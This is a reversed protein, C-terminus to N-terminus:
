EGISVKNKYAAVRRGWWLTEKGYEYFDGDYNKNKSILQYKKHQLLEEDYIVGHINYDIINKDPYVIQPDLMASDQYKLLDAVVGEPMPYNIALFKRIDDYYEKKNKMIAIITAEEFDWAYNERVEPVVRGWPLRADLVGDLTEKTKTLQENLFGDSSEMYGMLNIYFDEFSVGLHKNVFRSVFQTAGLYHAFM